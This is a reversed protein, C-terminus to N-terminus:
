RLDPTKIHDMDDFTKNEGVMGWIFTYNKTGCGSHISWSPSIVAQENQMVIHRTETPEGMYHFVVSDDAIDFYLYVEMRREHTHSPMTNWVSGEELMTLGMMLQCSQLVDPHLLQFITRKNATAQDGLVVKKADKMSVHKAPYVTHAPASNLYFKAPNAADNSIFEVKATEKGVYLADKNGVVYEVGDVVVKGEAGINIIGLERRELFSNTGLEKMTDVGDALEIVQDTPVVGGVIIRDIHSYVMSKKGAVFLNEVLFEERLEETTYYKADKQNAGYRIDM